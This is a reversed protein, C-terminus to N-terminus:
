KSELNRVILFFQTRDASKQDTVSRIGRYSEKLIPYGWYRGGSQNTVIIPTGQAAIEVKYPLHAQYAKSYLYLEDIDAFRWDPYIENRRRADKVSIVKTEVSESVSDRRLILSSSNIEELHMKDQQSRIRHVGADMGMMGCAVFFIFAVSIGTFVVADKMQM